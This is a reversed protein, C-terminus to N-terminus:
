YNNLRIMEELSYEKYKKEKALKLVLEHPFPKNKLRYKLSLYKVKIRKFLSRQIIPSENLLMEYLKADRPSYKNLIGLIEARRKEGGTGSKHDEHFRYLSIAKQIPILEFKESVRIFWEWDFVYNIKEDLKGVEEWVKRTWWSSPQIIYDLTKINIVENALVVNSGEAWLGNGERFHMCNGFYLADGQEKVNEAIYFLTRPLLIDDSNLWMLIEGTARAFGKNIAHAQGSDKVSEWYSIQSDYKKLIEVTNDTSGGDMVIYELNPYGQGLISTITDEIFHGQNYSPTIISIKPLSFM